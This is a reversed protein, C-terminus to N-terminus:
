MRPITLGGDVMITQGTSYPFYGQALAVVAKAVDEPYGWRPQVCLGEEILKDYKSTVGSTMDTKTVGPRVDYVPIGYEGLRTAFLLTMMSMGAKSICYEGRNVSAVTASISSINIIYASFNEDAQRQEIMWNAAQQTLFYPGQLNTKMVYEYSEESADLIDNREKPAVGANNVLVNLRGYHDGIQQLMRQRSETDAINGQCYIVDGGHQKLQDLVDTVAEEPRMGNIAVDFGEKALAEAIGFGIGRSGGTIFAVKNM